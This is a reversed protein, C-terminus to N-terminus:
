KVSNLINQLDMDSYSGLGGSYVSASGLNSSLSSPSIGPTTGGKFLNKLWDGIGGTVKDNGLLGGLSGIISAMGTDGQQANSYMTQVAPGVAGASTIFQPKQVALNQLSTLWNGRASEGFQAKNIAEQSALDSMEGAESMGLMALQNELAPSQSAGRRAASARVKGALGTEGVGGWYYQNIKKKALDWTENWAPSIAGYNPDKGWEQLKSWWDERAGTAEAYDPLQKYVLLDEINMGGNSGKGGGFWGAQSGVSGVTSITAAAIAGWSGRYNLGFGPIKERIAMEFKSIKKLLKDIM